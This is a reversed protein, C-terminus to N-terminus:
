LMPNFTIHEEAPFRKKFFRRTKLNKKEPPVMIIGQYNVMDM